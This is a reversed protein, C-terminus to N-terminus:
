KLTLQGDFTAPPWGILTDRFPPRAPGPWRDNRIGSARELRGARTPEGPWAPFSRVMSSMTIMPTADTQTNTDTSTNVSLSDDRRRDPGL